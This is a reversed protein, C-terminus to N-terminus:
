RRGRRAVKGLLAEAEDPSKVESVSLFAGRPDPFAEIFDDIDRAFLFVQFGKRAQQIHRYVHVWDRWTGNGAGFAWQVAHLNPTELLLDLSRLARPGDLHYICATMHNCERRIDPLFIEKFLTDSIMCSFDNQQVFPKQGGVFDWTCVPTRGRKIRKCCTDYIRLMDDTIRSNLAKVEDPREMLDVCLAQPDRLAARIDGGGLLPPIAALCKGKAADVYADVQEFFLRHWENNPDPRM